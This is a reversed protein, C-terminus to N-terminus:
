RPRRRLGGAMALMGAGFLWMIHAEPVMQVSALAPDTAFATEQGPQLEFRAIDGTGEMYNLGADLLAVALTTGAGAGDAAEFKVAFRLIGGFGTWLGAESWSGGNNLIFGSAADGSADGLTFSDGSFDGALQTITAQAPAANHLGLFLFDLYGSQGSLVHTDVSVYYTPGAQAAGGGCALLLGLAARLLLTRLASM